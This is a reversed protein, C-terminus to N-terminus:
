KPIVEVDISPATGNAPVVVLQPHVTAKFDLEVADPTDFFSQVDGDDLPEVRVVYVGPALGAVVFAGGDDFAVVLEDKAKTLRIETPWPTPAVAPPM